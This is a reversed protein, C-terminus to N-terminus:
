RIYIYIYIVQHIYIYIYSRLPFSVEHMKYTKRPVETLLMEGLLNWPYPRLLSSHVRLVRHQAM